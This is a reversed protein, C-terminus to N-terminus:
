KSHYLSYVKNVLSSKKLSSDLDVGHDEKAAELLQAKTMGNLKAKTIKGKIYTYAQEAKEQIDEATEKIDEVAEKATIKFDNIDVDGDGDRDGNFWLFAMAGVVLVAVILYFM